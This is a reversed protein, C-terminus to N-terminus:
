KAGAKAIIDLYAAEAEDLAHDLEPEDGGARWRAYADALRIAKQALEVDTGCAVIHDGVPVVVIAPNAISASDVPASAEDLARDIEAEAVNGVASCQEPRAHDGGEANAPLPNDERVARGPGGLWKTFDVSGIAPEYSVFRVAAPTALLHPIREDAYRQDEVSCGVWVNPLPWPFVTFAGKTAHLPIPVHDMAHKQVRLDPAEGRTAIWEFWRRMREARKTLIQFTVDPRAAMVGFVAAIMENPVWEGFMDTMDALFVRKGRTKLSRLMSMLVREDLFPTLGDMTTKTFPGGKAFRKGLAEAYCQACGPSIKVCGWVVNGKADRYRLPNETFDTWGIGGDRQDTGM